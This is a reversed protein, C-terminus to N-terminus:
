DGYENEWEKEMVRRTREKFRQRMRKRERPSEHEFINDIFNKDVGVEDGREIGAGIDPEVTELIVVDGNIEKVRTAQLDDYYTLLPVIDGESYDENYLFDDSEYLIRDVDRWSIQGERPMIIENKQGKSTTRIGKSSLAHRDSEYYWGRGRASGDKKPVARRM